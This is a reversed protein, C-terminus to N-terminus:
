IYPKYVKSTCIIKNNTHVIMAGPRTFKLEVSYLSIDSGYEPADLAVILRQVGHVKYKEGYFDFAEFIGTEFSWKIRHINVAIVHTSKGKVAELFREVKESM